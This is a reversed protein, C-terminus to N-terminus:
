VTNPELPRQLSRFITEFDEMFERVTLAVFAGEPTEFRKAKIVARFNTGDRRLAYYPEELGHIESDPGGAQLMERGPEKMSGPTAAATLERMSLGDLGKAGAAYLRVAQRNAYVVNGHSATVLAADPLCALAHWRWDADQASLRQQLLDELQEARRISEATLRENDARLRATSTAIEERLATSVMETRSLYGIKGRIRVWYSNVTANRIGLSQAIQEDTRGDIALNLV